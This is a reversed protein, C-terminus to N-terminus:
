DKTCHSFSKRKQHAKGKKWGNTLMIMNLMIYEKRLMGRSIIELKRFCFFFFLYSFFPSETM